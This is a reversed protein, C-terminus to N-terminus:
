LAAGVEDAAMRLDASEMVFLEDAVVNQCRFAQKVSRELGVDAIEDVDGRGDDIGQGNVVVCLGLLGLFRQDGCGTDALDNKARGEHEAPEIAFM